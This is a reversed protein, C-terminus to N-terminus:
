RRVLTQRPDFADRLGDGIFNVTLAILIIFMGPFYFLWPQDQVSLKADNILLGLSTDPRQVGFGIFSLATEALITTAIMVTAAVIITGLANPLLHRVIIRLDSAGMAKAAEVFEQERLSLVVGRVVRSVGAWALFSLVLALGWWSAGGQFNVSLTVAIAISPLTLVVDAIRMLLGDVRGRYFGAVAGWLAGFTTAILAVLLSIKLSQQTGRMSQGLLDHGAQDTGLPYQASPPSFSPGDIYAYDYKWLLPGVFAFLVILLFLVLSGVALRHRLFRRLVLELQSRQRTTLVPTTEPAKTVLSSSM